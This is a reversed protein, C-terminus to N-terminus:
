SYHYWTGVCILLGQTEHGQTENMYTNEPLSVQFINSWASLGELDFAQILEQYSFSSYLIIDVCLNRTWSNNRVLNTSYLHIKAESIALTLTTTRQIFNLCRKRFFLEVLSPRRPSKIIEALSCNFGKKINNTILKVQRADWELKGAEM